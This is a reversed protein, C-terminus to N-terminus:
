LIAFTSSLMDTFIRESESTPRDSVPLGLAQVRGRARSQATGNSIDQYLSQNDQQISSDVDRLDIPVWYSTKKGAAIRTLQASPWSQNFNTLQRWQNRFAAIADALDWLVVIRSGISMTGPIPDTGDLLNVLRQKAVTSATQRQPIPAFAM